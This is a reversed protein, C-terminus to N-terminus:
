NRVATVVYLNNVLAGGTQLLMKENSFESQHNSLVLKTKVALLLFCIKLIPFAGCFPIREFGKGKMIIGTM